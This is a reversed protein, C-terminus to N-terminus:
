EASQRTRRIRHRVRDFAPAHSNKHQEDDMVNVCTLRPM